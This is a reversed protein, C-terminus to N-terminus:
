RECSNPVRDHTFGIRACHDVVAACHAHSRWLDLPQSGLILPAWSFAWCPFSIGSCVFCIGSISRYSASGASSSTSM